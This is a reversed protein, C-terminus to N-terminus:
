GAQHEVRRCLSPGLRFLRPRHPCPQCEDPANIASTAPQAVPGPVRAGEDVVLGVAGAVAVASGQTGVAVTTGDLVVHGGVLVGEVWGVDADVEEEGLGDVDVMPWASLTWTSTPWVSSRLVSESSSSTAESSGLGVSRM